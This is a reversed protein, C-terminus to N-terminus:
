QNFLRQVAMTEVDFRTQRGGKLNIRGGVLILVNPQDVSGSSVGNVYFDLRDITVDPSTLGFTPLANGYSDKVDRFIKSDTLRYTVQSGRQDKFTIVSSKGGQLGSTVPDADYNSGVRINRVMTELAYNLNNIVTKASQAQKNADIISLLAGVSFVMVVSFIAVAVIMEIITFGRPCRKANLTFYKTFIKQKKIIM